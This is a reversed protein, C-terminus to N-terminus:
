RPFLFLTIFAIIRKKKKQLHPFTHKAIILINLFRQIQINKKRLKNTKHKTNPYLVGDPTSPFHTTSKAYAAPNRTASLYFIVTEQGDKAEFKMHM